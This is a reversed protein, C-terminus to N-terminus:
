KQPAGLMDELSTGFMDILVAPFNGVHGHNEPRREWCTCPNEPPIGWMHMNRPPFIQIGLTWRYKPFNWIDM